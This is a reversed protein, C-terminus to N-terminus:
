TDSHKLHIHVMVCLKITMDNRILEYLDADPAIQGTAAGSSGLTYLAYGASDENTAKLASQILASVSADKRILISKTFHENAASVEVRVVARSDPEQTLFAVSVKDLDLTLALSSSISSAGMSMMSPRRNSNDSDYENTGSFMEDLPDTFALKKRLSSMVSGNNKSAKFTYSRQIYEDPIMAIEMHHTILFEALSIIQGRKEENMSDKLPPGLNPGMLTAMNLTSM